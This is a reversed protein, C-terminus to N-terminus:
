RYKSKLKIIGTGKCAVCRRMLLTKADRRDGRGNCVPCDMDHKVHIRDDREFWQIAKTM